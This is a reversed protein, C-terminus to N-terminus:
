GLYATVDSDEHLIRYGNRILHELCGDFDQKSLHKHEYRIIAPKTKQFDVMKIIEYDYGEADIQLLDIQQVDQEVLLDDFSICLVTEQIIRKDIDPIHKRHSEIVQRDFSAIRTAWIPLGTLDGKPDIKYLQMEKIEKHVAKNVCSVQKEDAYNKELVKFIDKQPELAVGRLKYKKVLPHVADNGIGDNAGIQIFFFDETAALRHTVIFELDLNLVSEARKKLIPDTKIIQYRSSKLVSNNLLRRLSM